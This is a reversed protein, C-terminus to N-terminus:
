QQTLTVRSFTFRSALHAQPLSLSAATPLASSLSVVLFRRSCSGDAYRFKTHHSWLQYCPKCTKCQLGFYM